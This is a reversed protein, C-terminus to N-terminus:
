WIREKPRGTGLPCVVWVRRAASSLSPEVHSRSQDKPWRRLKEFSCTRLPKQSHKSARSLMTLTASAPSPQFPRLRLAKKSCQWMIVLASIKDHWIWNTLNMCNENLRHIRRTPVWDSLIHFCPIHQERVGWCHGEEPHSARHPLSAACAPLQGLDECQFYYHHCHGVRKWSWTQEAYM